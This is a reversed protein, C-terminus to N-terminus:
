DCWPLEFFRQAQGQSKFKRMQREQQRTPQHSLECGNNEYQVTSHEISPMLEKKAASYSALKDTVIKLPMVGQVKLLRKFFRMAARKDKRKQVLVDIEDGDQAVRVM